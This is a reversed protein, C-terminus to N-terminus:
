ATRSPSRSSAHATERRGAIAAPPARGSTRHRLLDPEEGRRLPRRDVENFYALDTLRRSGARLFVWIEGPFTTFGVPVTVAPPAQGSM